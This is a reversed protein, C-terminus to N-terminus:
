YNYSLLNQTIKKGWIVVNDWSPRQFISTLTRSQSVLIWWKQSLQLCSTFVTPNKQGHPGWGELVSSNRTHQVLWAKQCCAWKIWKVSFFVFCRQCAPCHFISGHIKITSTFSCIPRSTHWRDTLLSANAQICGTVERHGWYGRLCFLM